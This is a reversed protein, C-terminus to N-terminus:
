IEGFPKIENLVMIEIAQGFNDKHIYVDIHGFTRHSSDMQNMLVADIGNEVMAQKLIEAQYFNTSTFLKIWNKEM